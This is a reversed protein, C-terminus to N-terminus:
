EDKAEPMSEPRQNWESLSPSQRTGPVTDRRNAHLGAFPQRPLRYPLPSLPTPQPRERLTEFLLGALPSPSQSM